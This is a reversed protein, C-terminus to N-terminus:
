EAAIIRKRTDDRYILEPAYITTFTPNSSASEPAVAQPPTASAPTDSKKNDTLESVVNGKAHLTQEDRDIDLVSAMIRNAGQWMVAHGEYHITSNKDRTAMKDAKAQMPQSNDLMSTGPKENKDPAHTSVVHGEALMDGSSQDMVIQDATTSGTDDLVRANEQLVM